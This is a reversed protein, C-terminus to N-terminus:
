GQQQTLESIIAVSASTGIRDAGLSLLQRAQDATRIGGSAKIKISPILEQRLLEVMLPSAGDSNFGTSTKVYDVELENCIHCVAKIEEETLLGTEIIIKIIKGRLHVATTMRDIDNRVFNWNGSKVAALNIVVDFEQAGEDMGRKIEEVKAATASYGLPFGIVTAVKVSYDALAQSAEPVYFPPVCVAHFHHSIAEGCLIRIDAATTTPKLVTHDIYKALDMGEYDYTTSGGLARTKAKWEPQM